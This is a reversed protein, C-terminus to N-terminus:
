LDNQFDFKYPGGVFDDQSIFEVTAATGPMVSNASGMLAAVDKGGRFVTITFINSGGEPNEGTYTIRARGGFSGLGDDKVTISDLRWDGNQIPMKATPGKAAAAAEGGDQNASDNAPTDPSASRETTAQTTDPVESTGSGGAAVIGVLLIAALSLLYRKKKYWPRQAKAFAKAAKAAAKAQKYDQGQDPELSPERDQVAM